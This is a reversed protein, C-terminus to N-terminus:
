LKEGTIINSLRTITNHNLNSSVSLFNGCHTSYFVKYSLYKQLPYPTTTNPLESSNNLLNCHFDGLYSPPKIIRTTRRPIFPKSSDPQLHANFPPLDTHDISTSLVDHTSNYPFDIDNAPKPLVIKPFRDISDNHHPISQFPFIHEHFVVDRSISVSKCLIDYLKYSKVGHLYGIFM